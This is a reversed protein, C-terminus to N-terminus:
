NLLYCLSKQLTLTTTHKPARQSVMGGGEGWGGLFINVSIKKIRELKKGMMFVLILIFYM